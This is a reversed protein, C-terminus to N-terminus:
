EETRKEKKGKKRREGKLENNWKIRNTKYWQRLCDYSVDKFVFASKSVLRNSRERYIHYKRRAKYKKFIWQHNLMMRYWGELDHHHNM